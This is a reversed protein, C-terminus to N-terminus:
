GAYNFMEKIRVTLTPLVTDGFLAYLGTLLLGGLVVCILIKVGTDIYGEGRDNDLAMCAPYTVRFCVATLKRTLARGKCTISKVTNKIINKM